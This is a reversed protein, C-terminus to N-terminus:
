QKVIEGTFLQNGSQVKVIYIGKSLFSVNISTHNERIEKQIMTTGAIDFVEFMVKKAPKMVGSPGVDNQMPPDTRSAAM